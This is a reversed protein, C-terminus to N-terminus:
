VQAAKKWAVGAAAVDGRQEALEALACWARRKLNADKLQPTAQSL